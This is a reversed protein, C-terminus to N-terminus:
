NELIKEYTESNAPNVETLINVVEAKEQQFSESFINVLEKQKADFFVQLAFSGPNRRYVTQLAELSSAVNSRGKERDEAMLDLGQRHYEYYCDRLPRHDEDLMNDVLWYRNQRSEFAKWGSQRANQMQGVIEEAERFFPTGGESKFSDYDYGLIVYAYYALIGVLNSEISNENYVLNEQEAFNFDIQDDKLNLVTSKYSSNFVPRRSQIRLSGKFRDVGEVDDISFHLTCEIRESNEYSHDTWQQNNMFEHIAERLSKFVNRNVGQVGPAVVQVACRLEQSRLAPLMIGTLLLIFVFRKM